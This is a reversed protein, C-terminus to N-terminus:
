QEKDGLYIECFEFASKDNALGPYHKELYDQHAVSIMKQIQEKKFEKKIEANACEILFQDKDKSRMWDSWTRVHTRYGLSISILNYSDAKSILNYLANTFADGVGKQWLYFEYRIKKYELAEECDDPIPMWM